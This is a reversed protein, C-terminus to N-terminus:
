KGLDMWVRCAFGAVCLIMMLWMYRFVWKLVREIVGQADVTSSGHNTPQNYEPEIGLAAEVRDLAERLGIKREERLLKVALQKDGARLAVVVRPPLADVAPEFSGAVAKSEPEAEIRAKATLMDIGQAECLLKIALLKSGDRLATQVNTPLEDVSSLSM